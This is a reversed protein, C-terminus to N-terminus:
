QSRQDAGLTMALIAKQAHLRNEAQDLVASQPSDIVDNTIEQGRHAPLCHMVFAGPLAAAMMRSNVQYPMFVRIREETEAEQGMSTWVDTYVAQAGHVAELPNGFLTISGGTQHAAQAAAKVIGDDPEYGKPTAVRVHAGLRAGTLLLSHCVNNGDGVYALTFGAASGAREVITLFDALAQCPHERDSLANIVPVSGHEALAVLTDHSFTRAVIGQVWRSLNRAVDPVSERQGLQIDSAPLYIPHGGLQSMAVEFTVRTRLSPKEFILALSQGHLPPPSGERSNQTKLVSAAVLAARTEEISLDASSLLDRGRLLGIFYFNNPDYDM